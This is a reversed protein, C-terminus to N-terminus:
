SKISESDEEKQGDDDDRCVLERQKEFWQSLNEQSEDVILSSKEEEPTLEGYVKMDKIKTYAHWRAVRQLIGIYLEHHNCAEVYYQNDLPQLYSFMHNLDLIVFPFLTRLTQTHVRKPLSQHCSLVSMLARVFPKPPILSELMNTQRYKDKADSTIDGVNV